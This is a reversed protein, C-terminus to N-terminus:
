PCSAWGGGYYWIGEGIVVADDIALKRYEGEIAAWAYAYRIHESLYEGVTIVVDDHDKLPEGFHNQTQDGNADTVGVFFWRASPPGCGGDDVMMVQQRGLTLAIPQEISRSSKVWYGSGVRIEDVGPGDRWSEWSDGDRTSFAWPGEPEYPDWSMVIEIEPKTFVNEIEPDIPDAPVSVANWGAVLPLVFDGRRTTEFQFELDTENGGSDKAEVEVSHHGQNMSLPWYVFENSRVVDFENVIEEGDFVVSALKISTAEPFELLVFPRRERIVSGDPPHIKAQELLAKSGFRTDFGFGGKATAWNSVTVGFREYRSRDRGYAVVALEGDRLSTTVGTPNRWTLEWAQGPRSNAVDETLEFADDMGDDDADYGCTYSTGSPERPRSSFPGNRNAIFDDIDRKIQRAGERETWSLAECVVVVRPATQLPEDSTIRVDITDNTLRSPGEDGTGLGSGGSLTVTLRPAIGDKIQVFGLKRRDTSNGALDEVEEGDTIGVIPTADSALENRLRLFVYRGEVRTEVVEAFSGDNLSVRFTNVSVTEPAIDGDFALMIGHRNVIPLGDDDIGFYGTVSSHSHNEAFVSPMFTAISIVALFLFAALAIGDVRPKSRKPM